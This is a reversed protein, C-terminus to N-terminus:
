TWEGAVKQVLGALVRVDTELGDVEFLYGRKLEFSFSRAYGRLYEIHEAMDEIVLLVPDVKAKTKKKNKVATAM